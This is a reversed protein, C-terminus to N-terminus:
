LPKVTHRVYAAAVVALLEGDENTFELLRGNRAIGLHRFQGLQSELVQRDGFDITALRHRGAGQLEIELRCGRVVEHSSM